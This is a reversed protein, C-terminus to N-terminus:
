NSFIASYCSLRGQESQIDWLYLREKRSTCRCSPSWHLLQGHQDYISSCMDLVLAILKTRPVEEEAEDISPAESDSDDLGATKPGATTTASQTYPHVRAAPALYGDATDCMDRTHM